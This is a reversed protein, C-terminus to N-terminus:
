VISESKILLKLLMYVLRACRKGMNLYIEKNNNNKTILITFYKNITVLANQVYISFFDNSKICELPQGM